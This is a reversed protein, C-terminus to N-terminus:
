RGFPASDRGAVTALPVNPAHELLPRQPLIGAL